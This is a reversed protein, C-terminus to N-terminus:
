QTTFFNSLLITVRFIYNLVQTTPNVLAISTKHFYATFVMSYSFDYITFFICHLLIFYNLFKHEIWLTLHILSSKRSDLVFREVILSYKFESINNIPIKNLSNLSQELFDQILEPFKLIINIMLEPIWLWDSFNVNEHWM